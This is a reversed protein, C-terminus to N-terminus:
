VCEQKQALLECSGAIGNKVQIDGTVKSITTFGQGSNAAPQLFGAISSIEHGINAGSYKM